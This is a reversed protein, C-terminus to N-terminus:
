RKRVTLVLNSLICSIHNLNADVLTVNVDMKWELLAIYKAASAGGFGGGVVVVEYPSGAGGTATITTAAKVTSIPAAVAVAAAGLGLNKVFTRRDM